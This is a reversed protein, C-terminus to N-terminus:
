AGVMASTVTPVKEDVLGMVVMRAPATDGLWARAIDGDSSVIVTTGVAAGLRDVVVNPEAATSGDAEVRQVLLFRCGMLTSHKSTSVVTGRVRALFM